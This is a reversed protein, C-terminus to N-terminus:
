KEGADEKGQLALAIEGRIRDACDNWGENYECYTAYDGHVKYPHAAEVWSERRPHIAVSRQARSIAAEITELVRRENDKTM